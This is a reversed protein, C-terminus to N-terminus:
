VLCVEVEEASMMWGLDHIKMTGLRRFKDRDDRVLILGETRTLPLCWCSDVREYAVDFYGAAVVHNADESCQNNNDKKEQDAENEEMPVLDVMYGRKPKPSAGKIKGICMVRRPRGFFELECSKIHVATAHCSTDRTWRGDYKLRVMWNSEHYKAENRSMHEVRVQGQIAAWSWSPVETPIEQAENGNQPRPVVTMRRQREMPLYSMWLLGRVMDIEWLGALYRSRIKRKAVQALGSIAAFVDDQDTLKRAPYSWLVGIYWFVLWRRAVEDDDLRMPGLPKFDPGVAAYADDYASRIRYAEPRGARGDERIKLEHCQFALQEEGFILARSSLMEEQFCWGREFVPGYKLSRPLSLWIKGLERIESRPVGKYRDEGYFSIACPGVSQQLRNELFGEQSDAARGAIITLASNGYVQAMRRSEYEWDDRSGQVICLADIWVYRFGLDRALQFADRHTKPLQEEDIHWQLESLNQERLMLTSSTSTGWCYSLAVYPAQVDSKRTIVLRVSRRGRDGPEGIDILRTPMESRESCLFNSTCLKHKTRCEDMWKRAFDIHLRPNRDVTTWIESYTNAAPTGPDAFIKLEALQSEQTTM